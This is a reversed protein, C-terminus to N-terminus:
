RTNSLEVTCTEAVMQSLIIINTDDPPGPVTPIPVALDDRVVPWPHRLGPFSHRTLTLISHPHSRAKENM